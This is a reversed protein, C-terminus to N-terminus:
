DEHELQPPELLILRPSRILQAFLADAQAFFDAPLSSQIEKIRATRQASPLGVKNDTGTAVNRHRSAAVKSIHAADEVLPVGAISLIVESIQRGSNIVDEFRVLWIRPALEQLGSHFRMWLELCREMSFGSYLHYSTICDEPNRLTVFTPIGLRACISVHAIHHTHHAVVQPYSLIPNLHSVQWVLSSNASRPFGEICLRTIGKAALLEKNTVIDRLRALETSLKHKQAHSSFRLGSRSRRWRATYGILSKPISWYWHTRLLEEHSAVEANLTDQCQNLVARAGILANMLEESRRRLVDERRVHTALQGRVDSLAQTLEDMRALFAAERRKFLSLEQQAASLAAELAGVREPEAEAYLSHNTPQASEDVFKGALIDPPTLSVDLPHTQREIGCRISLTASRSILDADASYFHMSGMRRLYHYGFTTLFERLGCLAEDAKARACIIRPQQLDLHCGKLIEIADSDANISLVDLRASPFHKQLLEWVTSTGVGSENASVIGNREEALLAVPEPVKETGVCAANVCISHPQSEQCLKFYQSRPEVCIVNWGNQSFSFSNRLYKGDFAGVDFFLGTTPFDLLNWIYCDEGNEAYFRITRRRIEELDM